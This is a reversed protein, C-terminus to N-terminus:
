IDIGTTSLYPEWSLIIFSPGYKDVSALADLSEIWKPYPINYRGDKADTAVIERQILPQLFEVLRGDGCMVELVPGPVGRRKLCTNIISALEVVFESTYIQFFWRGSQNFGNCYKKIDSDAELQELFALADSYSLLVEHIDMDHNYQNNGM